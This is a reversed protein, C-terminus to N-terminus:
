ADRRVKEKLKTGNIVVPEEEYVIKIKHGCTDCYAEFNTPIKIPVVKPSAGCSRTLMYGEGVVSSYATKKGTWVCPRDHDEFIERIVAQLELECNRNSTFRGTVIMTKEIAKKLTM